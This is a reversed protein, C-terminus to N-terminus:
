HLLGRVVPRKQPEANGAKKGGEKEKKKSNKPDNERRKRTHKGGGTRNLEHKAEKGHTKGRTNQENKGTETHPREHSKGRMEGTQQVCM